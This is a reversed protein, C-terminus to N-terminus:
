FDNQTEYMAEIQEIAEIISKQGRWYDRGSKPQWESQDKLVEFFRGDRFVIELHASENFGQERKAPILNTTFLNKRNVEWRYPFEEVVSPRPTTVTTETTM